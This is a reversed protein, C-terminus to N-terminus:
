REVTGEESCNVQDAGGGLVGIHVVHWALLFSRASAPMQGCGVAELCGVLGLPGLPKPLSANADSLGGHPSARESCADVPM